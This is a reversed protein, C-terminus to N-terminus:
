ADVEGAWKFQLLASPLYDSEVTIPFNNDRAMCAIALPALAVLGDADSSRAEDASWYQKHWNLFEALSSNFQETEGRNYLQFLELAPYHIKLLSEKDPHHAVDPSVGKIAETLTRWMEDGQRHWYHQLAEAWAYTYEDFMAGEGSERLFSIPVSMLRDLRDDERCITALYVATLWNGVHTSSTAGTAPLETVKGGIGIRVLVTADSATAADFLASGVQMATIWAEWTELEEAPPDYACCSMAEHVTVSLARSRAVDSSALRDLVRRVSARLSEMDARTADVPFDHRPIRVVM